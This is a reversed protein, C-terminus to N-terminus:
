GWGCHLYISEGEASRAPLPLVPTTELIEIARAVQADLQEVPGFHAPNGTPGVGRGTRCLRYSALSLGICVVLFAMAAATLRDTSTYGRAPVVRDRQLDGVFLAALASLASMLEGLSSVNIRLECFGRRFRHNPRRILSLDHSAIVVTKGMRNLELLLRLLRESMEIWTEPPNTLGVCHRAVNHGACPGRQREGRYNLPCPM